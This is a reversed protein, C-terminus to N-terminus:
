QLHRLFIFINDDTGEERWVVGAVPASSVWSDVQRVPCVSTSSVQM